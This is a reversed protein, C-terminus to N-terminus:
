IRYNGMTNIRLVGFRLAEFVVPDTLMHIIQPNNAKQQQQRLDQVQKTIAVYDLMEEYLLEEIRQLVM